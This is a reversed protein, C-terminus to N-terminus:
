INNNIQIEKVSLGSRMVQNTSSINKKIKCKEKEYLEKIEKKKERREKNEQKVLKKREKKELKELEEKTIKPKNIIIADKLNAEKNTTTKNLITSEDINDKM